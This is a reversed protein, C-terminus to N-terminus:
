HAFNLARTGCSLSARHGGIFLLDLTTKKFLVESLGLQDPLLTEWVTDVVKNSSPWMRLRTM